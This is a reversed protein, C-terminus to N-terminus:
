RNKLTLPLGMFITRCIVWDYRGDGEARGDDEIENGFVVSRCLDTDKLFWAGQEDGRAGDVGFKEM